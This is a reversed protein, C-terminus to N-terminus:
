PHAVTDIGISSKAYRRSLYGECAIPFGDSWAPGNTMIERLVDLRRAADREPSETVIEDHAHMIPNLGASEARLLADALLDRCVAQTVNETLLGGYLGKRYGRVHAYTVTPRPGVDVGNRAYGPILLEIRADRYCLERGSPLRISLHGGRMEVVCRAVERSSAGSVADFVASQLGKWIGGQRFTFGNREGKYTGAIAPHANRYAEICQRPTVGAAALDVGANACFLAFNLEGMGYGAGLVVIKGIQREAEDRKTIEHGFLKTAMQCYVDDGRRFAEVLWDEGALWALGRCEVAAYDCIGMVHGPQPVLFSRLMTALVDDVNCSLQAAVEACSDYTLRESALQEIPVGKVGRTLNHIQVVRSTWRGTHAGYFVLMDRLREDRSQAYQSRVLKGTTIRTAAQRLRMVRAVLPVVTGYDVPAADDGDPEATFAEWDALMRKVTEKRLNHLKFGNAQLWRQMKPGSRLDGAKLDCIREIEEGARNVTVNGADILASRLVTDVGVGRDNICEHVRILDWEPRVNEAVCQEHLARTILVDAVNYRLLQPLYHVWSRGPKPKTFHRLADGGDLKGVGLLQEGIKDLSGPLGAYRALYLTDLWERPQPALKARWIREDFGTVNHGIFLAGGAIAEVIPTPLTPQWYVAVEGPDPYGAETLRERIDGFEPRKVNEERIAGTNVWCTCRDGQIAVLTIVHTTCCDAYRRSGYQKLDVSSVTEIDVYVPQPTRAADVPQTTANM